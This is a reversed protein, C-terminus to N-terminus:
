SLEKGSRFTDNCADIDNCLRVSLSKSPFEIGEDIFKSYVKEQIENKLIHYDASNCWARVGVTVYFDSISVIGIYIEQSTDLKNCSVTADHIVSYASCLDTGCRVPFSLDIRRKKEVSYNTIATNSLAGNPVTIRRNDGTRIVTYFIEVDVVTGSIAGSEIYDGLRFPKFILIMIGGALNSLSGQLALGVTVGASAIISIISATPIGLISIVIILLVLNLGIRIFSGVFGKVTPDILRRKGKRAILGVIIKIFIAGIIYAVFAGLLRGGATLAFDGLSNIINKWFDGM